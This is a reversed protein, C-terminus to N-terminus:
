SNNKISRTGRSDDSKTYHEGVNGVAYIGLCWKVFDAWETFTAMELALFVTATIILVATIILKRSYFKDRM